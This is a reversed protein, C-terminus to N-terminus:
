MFPAGTMGNPAVACVLGYKKLTDWHEPPVLEVSKCGLDRAVQCTRDIDWKEGAANFCWYVISQKSRGNVAATGEDAASERPKMLPLAAAGAAAAGLLKRRSISRNRSSGANM